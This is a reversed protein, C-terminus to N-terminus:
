RYTVLAPDAVVDLHAINNLQALSLREGSYFLSTVGSNALGYCVECASDDPLRLLQQCIASIPGGSTVIVLTRSGGARQVAQQLAALTRARFAAWSEPYDSDHAGSVWRAMAQAFLHQFARRPHPQAALWARMAAPDALDPRQALLIADHDYEDFGADIQVDAAPRLASPLAEMLGDATQRHRQLSGRHLMDVRRGCRAFWDGLLRAQREGLASLCDYHDSDFSAQGHRVLHIQGM